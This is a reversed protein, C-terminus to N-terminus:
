KRVEGYEHMAKGLYPNDAQAKQQIWDGSSPIPCTMVYYGEVGDALPIVKASLIKFLQRARDLAPATAVGQAPALLAPAPAAADSPKLHAAMTIAAVRASRLDDKALAARIQEYQDLTDRDTPSLSSAPRSNTHGHGCGANILLLCLSGFLAAGLPRPLPFAFPTM